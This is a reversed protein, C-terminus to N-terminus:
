FLGIAEKRTWEFAHIGYGGGFSHARWMELDITRGQSIPLKYMGLEPGLKRSYLGWGRIFSTFCGITGSNLFM